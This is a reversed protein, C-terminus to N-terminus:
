AVNRAQALQPAFLKRYRGDRALLQAPTGTEVIRGRDLVVVRDAKIVSPLRHAVLLITRRGAYRLIAEQMLDETESDVSATAEDLILIPANRMLARALAIRQRESGSLLSGRPGVRTMYGKPAVRAFDDVHCATAIDRLTEPSPDKTGYGLNDAISGHLLYAEQFVPVVPAAVSALTLDRVDVDDILVAGNDPDHLRLALRVLTSKGGGSAGVVALTEGPHLTLSVGGLVAPGGPYAFSVNRFELKGKCDQLTVAHPAERVLSRTDLIDAIRQGSVATRELRGAAGALDRIPTYLSGVTGLFAVIAGVSIAGNQIEFAGLVIVALGGVAAILGVMLSMAAHIRVARLEALRSRTNRADFYDVERDQTAFARILSVAGLREELLSIWRSEQGRALLSARRLRPVVHRAVGFILPVILLACLTLKWSLITLFVAYVLASVLDAGITLPGTYILYEVKDADRTLLAIQDGPTKTGFSGPSAAIMRGFLAVRVNQTIREVM